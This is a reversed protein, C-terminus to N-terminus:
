YAADSSDQKEGPKVTLHQTWYKDALNKWFRCEPELGPTPRARRVLTVLKAAEKTRGQEQLLGALFLHNLFFDPGLEMAKRLYTEAMDRDGGLLRPLRTHLRGLLRYAGGYYYSPDLELLLDMEKRMSKVYGLAKLVAGRDALLGYAMGLWYHPGPHNPHAKVAQRAVEVAQRYLDLERESESQTGVWILLRVLRLAAKEDSPNKALAKKYLDAAALAQKLDSRKEFLADARYICIDAEESALAGWSVLMFSFISIFFISRQLVRGVAPMYFVAKESLTAGLCTGLIKEKISKNTDVKGTTLGCTVFFM